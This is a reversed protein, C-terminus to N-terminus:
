ASAGDEPVPSIAGARIARAILDTKSRASFKVKLKQLHFRVTSESIYLRAGIERNTLGVSALELVSMQQPTLTVDDAHRSVMEHLQEVIQTAAGPGPPDFGDRELNDLAGYLAPLGAAKTVYAAAGAHLAQRAVGPSSYTTLIVVALSPDAERLARCLADGSTDPLRFDVLAVDASGTQVWALAAAGTPVAAVVDYRQGLTAMLGERVVEHDDVVLVRLPMGSAKM